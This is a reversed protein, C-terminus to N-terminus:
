GEIAKKVADLLLDDQAPLVTRADLKVRDHEVRAALPTTGVRLRVAMASAWASPRREARLTLAASPLTEGPLSGGGVTAACPEVAIQLGAVPELAACWRRARAELDEQRAAIMTWVPVAREEEGRMYHLLTANLMAITVKDLRLVRMLPHARLRKVLDARGVIIGSQPGGLLKDGSFLVLDAGAAVSEGVVPEAALGYPRLDRLAGSGVDAILPVGRERTLGALAALPVASTFGVIRFNSSHVYLVGGTKETTAEAYDDLRTKNTTGVEVLRAGSERMITPIRFGGGIEVAQGRSVVVERRRALASLVLVLAAATNNVAIADEAGTLAQLLATLHTHRSGRAGAVLDFELDSYASAAAFGAAAAAASLPARGLNTHLIVGTANIVTRPEARWRRGAEAAAQSALADLGLDGYELGTADRRLNGLIERVLAAVVAPTFEARVDDLAAHRLVADVSPLGRRVDSLAM